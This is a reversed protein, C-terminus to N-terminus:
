QMDFHEGFTKVVNEAEEASMRTLSRRQKIEHILQHNPMAREIINTITQCILSNEISSTTGECYSKVALMLAEAMSKDHEEFYNKWLNMFPQTM